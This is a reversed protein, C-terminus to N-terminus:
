DSLRTVFMDFHGGRVKQYAARLPFDTSGTYGTIYLNSHQDVAVALGVEFGSGGLYSSRSVRGEPDFSTIYADVLGSRRTQFADKIPFATSATYGTIHVYGRQDVAVASVGDNGLDGFYTSWLLRGKPDFKAVYADARGPRKAQVANQTPFDYSYTDGVIVVNGAPDTDMGSLDDDASGGFRTSWVLEGDNTFKAIFSNSLKATANHTAAIHKPLNKSRTTGGIYVNGSGDISIAKGTDVSRGGFYTSWLLAGKRSFKSVFVDLNGANRKQSAKLTPFDSSNTTGVVYIDGYEDLAIGTASENSSGGLYTSWVLHGDNSLKTVFAESFGAHGPQFAHLVPFDTVWTGGVAFVNGEEDSAIGQVTSRTLGNKRYSKAGGLHTAWLVQGSSSLKAVIGSSDGVRRPQFAGRTPFNGLYQTTGGVFVNGFRDVYVANARDDGKGGLFTSFIITSPAAFAVIVGLFVGGIVLVSFTKGKMM